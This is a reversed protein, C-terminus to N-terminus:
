NGIKKKKREKKRTYIKECFKCDDQYIGSKKRSPINDKISPNIHFYVSYRNRMM